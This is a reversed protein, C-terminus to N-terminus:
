RQIKRIHDGGGGGTGGGSGVPSGAVGSNLPKSALLEVQDFFKDGPYLAQQASDSYLNNEIPRNWVELWDVLSITVKAIDSKVVDLDGITGSFLVDGDLIRLNEDLVVIDLEASNGIPDEALVDRVLTTDN